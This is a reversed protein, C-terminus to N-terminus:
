NKLILFWDWEAPNGVGVSPTYLFLYVKAAPNSARYDKVKQLHSISEWIAEQDVAAPLGMDGDSYEVYEFQSASPMPVEDDIVPFSNAGNLAAPYSMQGLGNWVISGDFITEGTQQYKLKISGFDGPSVYEPSITFGEAEEFTLEKGGEFANTLLDVKLLLVKNDSDGPNTTSENDDSCSAFLTVLGLIIFTKKM